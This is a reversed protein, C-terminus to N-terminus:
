EDGLLLLSHNCYKTFVYSLGQHQVMGVIASYDPLAFLCRIHRAGRLVSGTVINSHCRFCLRSIYLKIM